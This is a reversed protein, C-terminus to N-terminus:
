GSTVTAPATAPPQQAAKKIEALGDMVEKVLVAWDAANLISKGKYTMGNPLVMEVNGGVLTPVATAMINFPTAIAEISKVVHDGLQSSWATYEKSMPLLAEVIQKTAAETLAVNNAPEMLPKTIKLDGTKSNYSIDDAGWKGESTLHADVKAGFLNKEVKVYAGAKEGAGAIAPGTQIKNNYGTCGVVLLNVVLCAVALVAWRRM